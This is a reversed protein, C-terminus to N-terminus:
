FQPLLAVVVNGTDYCCELTAPAVDELVDMFSSAELWKELDLQLGESDYQSTSAM